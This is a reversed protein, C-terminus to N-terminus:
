RGKSASMLGGVVVMLTPVMVAAVMNPLSGNLSKVDVAGDLDSPLYRVTVVQQPSLGQWTEEPYKNTVEHTQGQTDKFRVVARYQPRGFDNSDKSIIVGQTEQAPPAYLRNKHPIDYAFLYIGAVLGALAMQLGFRSLKQRDM